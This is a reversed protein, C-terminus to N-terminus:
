IFNISFFILWFELRHFKNNFFIFLDFLNRVEVRQKTVDFVKRKKTTTMKCISEHKEIRDENFNRGCIKCAVMGEPPPGAM